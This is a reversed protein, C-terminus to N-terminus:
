VDTLNNKNDEEGNSEEHPAMMSVIPGIFVDDLLDEMSSPFIGGQRTKTMEENLYTWFLEMGEEYARASVLFLNRDQNETPLAWGKPYVLGPAIKLGGFLYLGRQMFQCIWEAGIEESLPHGSSAKVPPEEEIEEEEEVEEEKNIKREVSKGGGSGWQTSAGSDVGEGTFGEPFRNPGGGVGIWSKSEYGEAQPINPAL